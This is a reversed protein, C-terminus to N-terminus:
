NGDVVSGIGASRRAVVRYLGEAVTMLLRVKPDGLILMQTEANIAAHATGNALNRVGGNIVEFRTGPPGSDAVYVPAAEITTTNV